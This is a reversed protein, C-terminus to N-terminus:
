GPLESSWRCANCGAFPSSLSSSHLLQASFLTHHLPEVRCLPITEDLALRSLVYEDMERRNLHITVFRQRLSLHYLERDFLPRFAVLGLVNGYGLATGVLNALRALSRCRSIAAILVFSSKSLCTPVASSTWTWRKLSQPARNAM